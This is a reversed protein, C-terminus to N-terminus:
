VFLHMITYTFYLNIKPKSSSPDINRQIVFNEHRGAIIQCGM